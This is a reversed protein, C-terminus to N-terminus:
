PNRVVHFVTRNADVGPAPTEHNWYTVFGKSVTIGEFISPPSVLNCSVVIVGQSGDSFNVTLVALGAHADVPDGINDTLIGPLAGPAQHWSVLGTVQYDGSGTSSGGSDFTEWTGGGTVAGSMQGERPSVFTGSGTLTIKSGDEAKASAIGGPDVTLDVPPAVSVLDWRIATAKAYAVGSIASMMGVGTIIVLALALMALGLSSTRNFRRNGVM